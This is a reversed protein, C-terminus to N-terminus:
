LSGAYNSNKHALQNNSSAFNLQLEKSTPWAKHVFSASKGKTEFLKVVFVCRKQKEKPRCQRDVRGWDVWGRGKSTAM